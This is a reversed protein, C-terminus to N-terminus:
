GCRPDPLLPAAGLAVRPHYARDLSERLRRDYSNGCLPIILPVDCAPATPQDYTPMAGKSNAAVADMGARRGDAVWCVGCADAAARMATYNQHNHHRARRAAASNHQQSHKTDPTIVFPINFFVKESERNTVQHLYWNKESNGKDWDIGIAKDIDDHM